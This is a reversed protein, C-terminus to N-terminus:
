KVEDPKLKEIIKADVWYIDNNRTFFFYKMDHSIWPGYDYGSSNIKEGLNIPTSWTEYKKNYTSIYLDGSGFGDPRSVSTFIMFSEDPSVFVDGENYETSIPPGVIEPKSFKGDKWVSKYIDRQGFGGPMNSNFYLTGSNTLCPFIENYETNLPPGPNIPGSWYDGDWEMILIDHPPGFTKEPKKTIYYLFRGDPSIFPDAEEYVGSFPAVRPKSWGHDEMRMEWIQYLGNDNKRTFYFLKGDKSFIANLEVRDTSVIGPTFLEPTMGPPEQGLYPGKLIPFDVEQTCNVLLALMVCLVVISIPIQKM